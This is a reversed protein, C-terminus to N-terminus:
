RAPQARDYRSQAVEIEDHHSAAWQVVSSIPGVLTRGMATLRYEVRPPVEPYATRDVVGDRELGRLTQTLMKQSIGEIERQLEAFRMTRDRLLNVILLSWKDGLRNLTGRSPCTSDYPNATM